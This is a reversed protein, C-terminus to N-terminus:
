KEIALVEIVGGAFSEPGVVGIVVWDSQRLM